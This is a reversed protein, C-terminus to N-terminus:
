NQALLSNLIEVSELTLPVNLVMFHSFDKFSVLSHALTTNILYFMGAEFFYQRDNLVFSYSELDYTLSIFIRFCEPFVLANDRHHPFFGGKGLRLIHSRGLPGVQPLTRQLEASKHYLPTFTKFEDERFHTKHMQNYEKLSYLDPEGSLGGDLSTISLGWRANGTKHANYTVWDNEFKQLDELILRPNLFPHLTVVDGLSNLYLLLELPSPQHSM